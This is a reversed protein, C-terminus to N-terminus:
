SSSSSLLPTAGGPELLRLKRLAGVRNGRGQSWHSAFPIVSVVTPTDWGRGAGGPIQFYPM